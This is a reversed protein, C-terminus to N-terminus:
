RASPRRPRYGALGRARLSRASMREGRPNGTSGLRRSGREDRLEALQRLISRRAAMLWITASSSSVGEVPEGVDAFFDGVLADDDEGGPRGGDGVAGGVFPLLHAEFGDIAHPRGNM